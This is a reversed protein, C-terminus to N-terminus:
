WQGIMEHINISPLFNPDEYIETLRKESIIGFNYASKVNQKFSWADDWLRASLVVAKAMAEMLSHKYIGWLEDCRERKSLSIRSTYDSVIDKPSACRITEIMLNVVAEAVRAKDKLKTIGATKNGAIVKDILGPLDKEIEDSYYEVMLTDFEEHVDYAEPVNKFEGRMKKQVLRGNPDGHHLYSIHLPMVADFVYHLMIGAACVFKDYDGSGAYNKLGEFIFGVRFPLTGKQDAKIKSYYEDWRKPNVNKHIKDQCIDV